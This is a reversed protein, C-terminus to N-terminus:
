DKIAKAFAQYIDPSAQVTEQVEPALLSIFRQEVESERAKKVARTAIQQLLIAKSSASITSSPSSSTNLLGIDSIPTEPTPAVTVRDKGPAGAPTDTGDSQNVEPDAKSSNALIPEVSTTSIVGDLFSRSSQQDSGLLFKIVSKGNRVLQVGPFVQEIDEWCVFNQGEIHNLTIEVTDMTGTLRVSQTDEM